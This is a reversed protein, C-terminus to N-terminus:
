LSVTTVWRVLIMLLLLLWGLDVGGEKVRKVWWPSRARDGTKTDFGFVLKLCSCYSETFQSRDNTECLSTM